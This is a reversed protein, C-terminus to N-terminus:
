PLEEPFPKIKGSFAKKVNLVPKKETSNSKKIKKPKIKDEQYIVHLETPEEADGKVIVIQRSLAWLYVQTESFYVDRGIKIFPLGEENRYRAITDQSCGFWEALEGETMIDSLPTKRKTRAIARAENLGDNTKYGM